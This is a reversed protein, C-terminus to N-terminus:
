IDESRPIQHSIVVLIPSTQRELCFELGTKKWMKPGIKAQCFDSFHKMKASCFRSVPVSSHGGAQLCAIPSVIVQPDKGDFSFEKDKDSLM